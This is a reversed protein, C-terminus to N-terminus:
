SSLINALMLALELLKDLFEANGTVEVPLFLKCAKTLKRILLQYVDLCLHLYRFESSQAVVYEMRPVKKESDVAPVERVPHFDTSYTKKTALTSILMGDISGPTCRFVAEVGQLSTETCLICRVIYGFDQVEVTHRLFLKGCIACVPSM